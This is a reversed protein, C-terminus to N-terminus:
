QGIPHFPRRVRRIHKWRIWDKLILALGAKIQAVAIEEPTKERKKKKSM